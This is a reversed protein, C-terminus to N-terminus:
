REKIPFGNCTFPNKYEDDEPELIWFVLGKLLEMLSIYFPLNLEENECRRLYGLFLKIRPVCSHCYNIDILLQNSAKIPLFVDNM